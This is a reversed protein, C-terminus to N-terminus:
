FFLIEHKHRYLKQKTLYKLITQKKMCELPEMLIFLSLFHVSIKYFRAFNEIYKLISTIKKIVIIKIDHFNASEPSELLIFRTYMSKQKSVVKELHIRYIKTSKFM